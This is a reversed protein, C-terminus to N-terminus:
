GFIGPCVGKIIMIKFHYCVCFLVFQILVLADILTIM